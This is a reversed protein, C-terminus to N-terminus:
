LLQTQKPLQMLLGQKALKELLLDTTVVAESQMKDGKVGM